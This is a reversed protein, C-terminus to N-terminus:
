KSQSASAGNGTRAFFRTNFDRAALDRAAQLREQRSRWDQIESLSFVFGLEAPNFPIQQTQHLKMVNAAEAMARHEHERRESQLERFQKLTTHFIRTLRSEYLSLRALSEVQSEILRAHSEPGAAAVTETASPTDDVGATEVALISEECSRCRNLRWQTNVLTYALQRELEGQPKLEEFFRRKSDNYAELDDGPLLVMKSTLGHRLANTSSRLKGEPTRPGTSLQSNAHNAQIRAASTSM